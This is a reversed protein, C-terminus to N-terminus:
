ARRKNMDDVATNAGPIQLAFIPLARVDDSSNAKSRGGNSCVCFCSLASARYEIVQNAPRDSECDCQGYFATSWPGMFVGCAGGARCLHVKNRPTANLTLRKSHTARHMAAAATCKTDTDTRTMTRSQAGPRLFGGAYCNVIPVCPRRALAHVRNLRNPHM